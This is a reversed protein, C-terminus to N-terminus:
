RRLIVAVFASFSRDEDKSSRCVNLNMFQWESYRHSYIEYDRGSQAFKSISWSWSRISTRNRIVIVIQNRQDVNLTRHNSNSLDILMLREELLDRTFFIEKSKILSSVYTMAESRLRNLNIMVPLDNFHHITCEWPM